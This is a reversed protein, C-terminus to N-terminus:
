LPRQTTVQERHWEIVKPVADDDGGAEMVDALMQILRSAALSDAEPLM